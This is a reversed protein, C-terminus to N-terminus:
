IILINKYFVGHSNRCKEIGKNGLLRGFATQSLPTVGNENCFVSYAAFLASALCTAGDQKQVRESFFRGFSDNQQVYESTVNTIMPPMRLGEHYYRVAGKVLWALIAEKEQQSKLKEPLFRDMNTGSFTAHFPIVCLRRQIAYEGGRIQPLHNTDIFIKFKPKLEFPEGYLQRVCIKSGGTLLKVLGENLCSGENPESTFITRINPTQALEPSPKAGSLNDSLGTLVEIPIHKSYSSIVEGIAEVLTTKGNSGEGHLFFIKQEKTEGTIAYGFCIQLFNMLEVNGCCISSIFTAFASNCSFANPFFDVDCFSTLYLNKDHPFIVGSELDIIGNRVTLLKDHGDFIENPVALREKLIEVLANLRCNNCSIRSHKHMEVQEFDRINTLHKAAKRYMKMVQECMNKVLLTNVIEWYKGNWLLFTATDYNYRLIDGYESLFRDANGSDDTAFSLLSFRINSLTDIKCYESLELREQLSLSSPQRLSVPLLASTDYSNHSTIDETKVTSISLLPTSTEDVVDPTEIHTEDRTPVTFAPITLGEATIYKRDQFILPVILGEPTRMNRDVVVSESSMEAVPLDKLTKKTEILKM